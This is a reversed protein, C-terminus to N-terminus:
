GNQIGGIINDVISKLDAGLTSYESHIRESCNEIKQNFTNANNNHLDFLISDIVRDEISCMQKVSTCDDFRLITISHPCITKCTKTTEIVFLRVVSAVQITALYIRETKDIDIYHSIIIEGDSINIDEREKNLNLLYETLKNLIRIVKFILPDNLSSDISITTIYFGEPYQLVCKKYYNKLKKIEKKINKSPCIKYAINTNNNFILDNASIDIILYTDEQFKYSLIYRDHVEDMIEIIKLKTM